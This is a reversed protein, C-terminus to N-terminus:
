FLAEKDNFQKYVTQKSVAARAAIQDMSTGVFGQAFFLHRAAELIATRKRASRSPGEAGDATVQSNMPSSLVLCNRVPGAVTRFPRTSLPPSTFITTIFLRDSSPTICAGPLGSSSVRPPNAWPPHADRPMSSGSVSIPDAM